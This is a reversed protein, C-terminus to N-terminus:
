SKFFNYGLSICANHMGLILGNTFQYDIGLSPSTMFREQRNQGVVVLVRVGVFFCLKGNSGPYFRFNLPIAVGHRKINPHITLPFM